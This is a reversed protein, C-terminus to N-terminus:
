PAVVSRIGGGIAVHAVDLTVITEAVHDRPATVDQISRVRLGSLDIRLVPRTFTRDYVTLSGNRSAGSALWQRFPAAQNRAVHLVVPHYSVRTSPTGREFRARLLPGAVDVVLSDVGRVGAVDVGDLQLRFNSQPTTQPGPGASFGAPASTPTEDQAIGPTFAVILRPEALSAGDLAPLAFQRIQSHQLTILDTPQGDYDLTEVQLTFPPQRGDLV